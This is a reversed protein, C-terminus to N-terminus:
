ANSPTIMTTPTMPHQVANVILLIQAQKDIVRRNENIITSMMTAEAKNMGPIYPVFNTVSPHVANLFLFRSDILGAVAWSTNALIPAISSANDVPTLALM